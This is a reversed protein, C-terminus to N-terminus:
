NLVLANDVPTFTYYVYWECWNGKYIGKDETVTLYQDVTFGKTLRNGTVNYSTVVTGEEPSLELTGITTTIDYQNIDLDVVDGDFIENGGIYHRAEWKSGVHNTDYCLAYIHVMLRDAMASACGLCLVLTLLIAIAKKM